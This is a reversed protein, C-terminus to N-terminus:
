EQRLVVAPSAGIAHLAPIACAAAAVGLLAAAVAGYTSPDTASVGFLLANALRTVNLAGVVGLTVGAAVLWTGRAVFLGLVRAPRGGLAIRISIEKRQQHVYNAMLSYIGVISLLLAVAAFGAALASLGAPRQLSDAVLEDITGANALPVGPNLGRLVDRVAQLATSDSGATRVLLYRSREARDMPSYVTGQDPASLGDYKVVPVVGVVTTWPCTSCGGEHLHRGVASQGPFFRKAWATDVVIVPPADENADRDDLLRGEVAHAGILPFYEPTVAVWTTVPQSQGATVPADQLEFNNQNGADDPPRSDTFAADVIGPAALVRKRLETWFAITQAPTSYSTAPVTIGATLVGRTDFGVPVRELRHLTTMFLLALILMPTAVAFQAAVLAAGVRRGRRSHTASRGSDRLTDDLSGRTGATAPILGFLVISLATSLLLVALTRGGLTMEAARPVYDVALTQVLRIGGSALAAGLLAAITALLASEILLHALVRGRSAGLATRVALERRRGAVRALLLTSANVCAILWVFAVVAAVVAATGPFDGAVQRKLDVMGWTAREDQYSSQWLPFIRRDIERLQAEAAARPTGPALRGLATILFPGRRPPTTWRAAVFADIGRELPGTDPPMIGLVTYPTEDLRIVKGVVSPDLGLREKWFEYSVVATPPAGSRDDSPAFTRGNLPQLRLVDFYGASVLRVRLREANRGDSYAMARDTYGAVRSFATQQQDLALYDAVSFRWRYPPSDTFIRFLEDPNQYPLPRFIAADAAAFMVTTAGIGIGVTGVITLALLPVRRLARVSVRVDQGLGSFFLHRRMRQAKRHHQAVCYRRTAELDGFQALAARRAADETLGQAKLADIRQDIHARLEEDIEAPSAPRREGGDLPVRM